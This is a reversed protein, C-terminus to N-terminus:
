VHKKGDAPLVAELHNTEVHVGHLGARCASEVNDNRDEFFVTRAPDIGSQAIVQQYIRIDPKALKMEFSLFAHDFLDDPKYGFRAMDKKANEWLVDNINSLLFVKHTKRLREIMKLRSLPLEGTLRDIFPQLQERTVGNGMAALMNDVIGETPRLGDIFERILRRFRKRHWWMRWRSVGLSLLTKRALDDELNVIVGGYDFIVNDYDGLNVTDAM